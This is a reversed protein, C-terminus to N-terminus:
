MHHVPFSLWCTNYEKKNKHCADCEAVNERPTYLTRATGTDIKCKLKYCNTCTRQNDVTLWHTGNAYHSGCHSCSPLPEEGPAVECRKKHQTAELNNRCPACLPKNEADKWVRTATNSKCVCCTPVNNENTTHKYKIKALTITATFTETISSAIRRAIFAIRNKPICHTEFSHHNPPHPFLTVQAIITSYPLDEKWDLNKKM